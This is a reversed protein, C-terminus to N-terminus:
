WLVLDVTWKFDWTMGTLYQHTKLLINTNKNEVMAHEADSNRGERIQSSTKQKNEHKGQKKQKKPIKWAEKSPHVYSNHLSCIAKIDIRKKLNNKHHQQHRKRNSTCSHQVNLM